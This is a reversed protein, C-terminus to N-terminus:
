PFPVFFPPKQDVKGKTCDQSTRRELSGKKQNLCASPLVTAELRESQKDLLAAAGAGEFSRKVVNFLIVIASPPSWPEKKKRRRDRGSM